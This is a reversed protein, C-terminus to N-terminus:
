VSSNEFIIGTTTNIHDQIDLLSSKADNATILGDDLKNYLNSIELNVQHLSKYTKKLLKLDPSIKKKTKKKM